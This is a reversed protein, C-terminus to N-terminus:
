KIIYGKTKVIGKDSLISEINNFDWYPIRILKINNEICYDSKIKDRMKVKDFLEEAKEQPMGNFRVPFYHQQGDYEILYTIILKDNFIAFDFPLPRNYKCDKIRYQSQHPINYNELIQKLKREGSSSKCLPCLHGSLFRNPTTDWENGCTIHRVKLKTHANKYKGLVIYEKGTPILDVDYLFEDQTKLINGFCKPCKSPNSAKTINASSLWWEYGCEEINHRLKIKDSTNKYDSLLIYENKLKYKLYYEFDKQDMENYNTCIPCFDGVFDINTPKKDFIYGCKNHKFKIEYTIAKYQGLVEYDGKYFFEMKYKFAKDDMRVKKGCVPCNQRRLISAARMDYEYNCKIHKIKIPKNMGKYQGIIIYEGNSKELIKETFFEQTIEM